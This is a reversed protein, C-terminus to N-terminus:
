QVAAIVIVGEAIDIQGEHLSREIEKVFVGDGGLQSLPMHTVRDGTTHIHEIAIELSPWQQHLREVVWSTQIM